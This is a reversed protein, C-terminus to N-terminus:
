ICCDPHSVSFFSVTKTINGRLEQFVSYFRYSVSLWSDTLTQLLLFVLDLSITLSQILTLFVLSNYGWRKSLICTWIEKVRYRANSTSISAPFGATHNKQDPAPMWCRHRRHHDWYLAQSMVLSLSKFFMCRQKQMTLKWSTSSSRLFELNWRSLLHLDWFLPRSWPEYKDTASPKKM